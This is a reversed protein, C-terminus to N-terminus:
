DEGDEKLHNRTALRSVYVDAFRYQVTDVDPGVVVAVPRALAETGVKLLVVRDLEINSAREFVIRGDGEAIAYVVAVRLRQPQSDIALHEIFTEGERCCMVLPRTEPVGSGGDFDLKIRTVVGDSQLVDLGVVCCM